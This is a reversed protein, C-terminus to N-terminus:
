SCVRRSMGPPLSRRLVEWGLAGNAYHSATEDAGDASQGEIVSVLQWVTKCEEV